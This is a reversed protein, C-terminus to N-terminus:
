AFIGFTLFFKLFFNLWLSQRFQLWTKNNENLRFNLKLLSTRQSFWDFWTPFFKERVFIPFKSSCNFFDKPLSLIRRSSNCSSNISISLCLFSSIFSKFWICAENLCSDSIGSFWGDQEFLTSGPHEYECWDVIVEDLWNDSVNLLFRSSSDFHLQWFSHKIPGDNWDIRHYESLFFHPLTPDLSVNILNITLWIITVIFRQFLTLWNFLIVQINFM